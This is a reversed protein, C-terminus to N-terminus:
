VGCQNLVSHLTLKPWSKPCASCGYLELYGHMCLNIHVSQEIIIFSQEVLSKYILLLVGAAQTSISSHIVGSQSPTMIAKLDYNNNGRFTSDSQM